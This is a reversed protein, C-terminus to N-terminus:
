GWSFPLNDHQRIILKRTPSRDDDWFIELAKAQEWEDNQWFVLIHQFASPGDWGEGDPGEWRLIDEWFPKLIEVFEDAQTYNGITGWLCLGSKTGPAEDSRGALDALFHIAEKYLYDDPINPLHKQAYKAIDHYGHCPFCVHIHVWNGM